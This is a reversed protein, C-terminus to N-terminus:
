SYCLIFGVVTDHAGTERVYDYIMFAILGGRLFPDEKQEELNIKNLASAIKAVLMEFYPFDKGCVAQSSKLEDVSDVM